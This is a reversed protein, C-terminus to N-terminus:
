RSSVASRSPRGIWSMRLVWALVERLVNVITWVPVLFVCAAFFLM